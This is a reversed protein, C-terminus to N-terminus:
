GFTIVNFVHVKKKERGEKLKKIDRERERARQEFMLM